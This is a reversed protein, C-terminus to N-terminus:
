LWTEDRPECIRDVKPPSRAKFGGEKDWTTGDGFAYITGGRQLHKNAAVVDKKRQEDAKTIEGGSPLGACKIHMDWRGLAAATHFQITKRENGRDYRLKAARVVAGAKSETNLLRMQTQIRLTDTEHELSPLGRGAERKPLHMLEPCTSRQLYAARKVIGRNKSDWEKLVTGPVAAVQLPFKLAANIMANICYIAMEATPKTDSIRDYLNENKERLVKIQEKWSLNM